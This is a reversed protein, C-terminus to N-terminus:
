KEELIAKIQKAKEQDTTFFLHPHTEEDIAAWEICKEKNFLFWDATASLVEDTIVRRNSSMVGNSEERALYIEGSMMANRLKLKEYAM